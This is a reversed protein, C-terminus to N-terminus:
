EAVAFSGSGPTVHSGYGPQVTLSPSRCFLDGYIRVPADTENILVHAAAPLKVCGSPDDWSSLKTSETSFVTVRGRAADTNATASAGTAMTVACAVTTAATVIFKKM